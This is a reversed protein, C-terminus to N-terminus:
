LENALTLLTIHLDLERNLVLRLIDIQHHHLLGFIVKRVCVEILQNVVNFILPAVFLEEKGSVARIHEVLQANIFDAQNLRSVFTQM